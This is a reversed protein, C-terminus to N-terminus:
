GEPTRTVFSSMEASRVGYIKEVQRCIEAAIKEPQESEDHDAIVKIYIDTRPMLRMIAAM